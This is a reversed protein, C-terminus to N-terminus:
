VSQFITKCIIIEKQKPGTGGMVWGRECYETQLSLDLYLCFPKRPFIKALKSSAQLGLSYHKARARYNTLLMYTCNTLMARLRCIEITCQTQVQDINCTYQEKEWQLQDSSALHCLLAFPLEPSLDAGRTKCFLTRVANEFPRNNQGQDCVLNSVRPWRCTGPQFEKLM